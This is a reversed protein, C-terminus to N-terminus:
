RSDPQQSFRLLCILLVVSAAELTMALVSYSSFDQYYFGMVVRPTAVGLSVFLMATLAARTNESIAAGWLCIAGLAMHLGGYIVQLEIRGTVSHATINVLDALLEPKFLQMSGQAVFLVGLVALVIQAIKM